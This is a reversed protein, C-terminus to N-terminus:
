TAAVRRKSSISLTAAVSPVRPDSSCRGGPLSGATGGAAVSRSENAIAVGGVAPVGIAVPVAEGDGVLMTTLSGAIAWRAAPVPRHIM